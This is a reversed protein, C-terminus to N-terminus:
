RAVPRRNNNPPPPVRQPNQRTVPQPHRNPPAPQQHPQERRYQPPPPPGYSPSSNKHRPWNNHIIMGAIIGIIGAAIIAGTNDSKKITPTNDASAPAPTKPKSASVTGSAAALLAKRQSPTVADPDESILRVVAGRCTESMKGGEAVWMMCAQREEPLLNAFASTGSYAIMADRAEDDAFAASTGAILLTIVTLSLIIKRM